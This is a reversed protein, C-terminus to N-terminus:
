YRLVLAVRGDDSLSGDPVFRVETEKDLATEVLQDVVDQELGGLGPIAARRAADAAEEDQIVALHDGDIRAAAQFHEEVLLLAGRGQGVAEWVEALGGAFRRQGRAAALRDLAEADLRAIHAALVPRLREALEHAPAKDLGAQALRGAFEVSHESVDDFLALASNTGVLFVPRREYGLAKGLAADVSRLYKRLRAERQPGPRAGFNPGPIADQPDPIGPDVPFGLREVKALREGGGEWLRAAEESIVLVWYPQAYLRAAVLNRTLFTGAVVLRDPVPSPSALQWNHQEGPAVLILLGDEAHEFDVEAAARDLQAELDLRVARQIKPDEAVRKKAETLLNRLRIPDQATGPRHRHTPMLLSLAPYRRERRLERLVTPTLESTHM